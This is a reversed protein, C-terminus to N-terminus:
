PWTPPKVVGDKAEGIKVDTSVQFSRFNRYTARGYLTEGPKRYNEEMEAPAWVGITGGPRYVVTALMEVQGASVVTRTKLIRGTSPEVWLTGSAPADQNTRTQRILTPRHKEEFDVRVARIGEVVEEGHRDFRLGAIRGPALLALPLIPVNITRTITGINYRASEASIREANELAEAPHELFLKRVREERDRVPQGNVEFVDRFQLWGVPGPIKLLLLDSRLRRDQPGGATGRVVQQRYEEEAVVNSFDRVYGELYESMRALVLALVPDSPRPPQRASGAETTPTEGSRYVARPRAAEGDIASPAAAGAEAGAPLPDNRLVWRRAAKLSLGSRATRIEVAHSRGDRDGDRGEIEVLYGGSLASRLADFTLADNTQRVITITGGTAAAIAPLDDSGAARTRAPGIEVLHVSARSRAAAETVAAVGAESKQPDSPRGPTASAAAARFVVVTKVGALGRAADILSVLDRITPTQAPDAPDRESIGADSAQGPQRDPLGTPRADGRDGGLQERAQDDIGTRPLESARAADADAANAVPARGVVTTASAWRAAPDSSLVIRSRGLPLAVVAAQDARGLEDLVRSVAAVVPREGGRAFTAEDVVLLVTRSPEALAPAVRAGDALRAAVDAGPGRHVYRLSVIPRPENDITVRLDQPHLTTVPLGSGDTVFADVFVTKTASPALQPAPNEAGAQADVAPPLWYSAAGCAAILLLLLRRV